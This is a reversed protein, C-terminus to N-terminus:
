NLLWYPFKYGLFGKTAIVASPQLYAAPLATFDISISIVRGCGSGIVVLNATDNVVPCSPRYEVPLWLLKKTNCTIWQDTVYLSHTFTHALSRNGGRHLSSKLQLIGHSTYLHTGDNSFKMIVISAHTEIIEITTNKTADWLRVTKDRSASAVLKGDPSFVASDVADPHGELVGCQKGTSADWLRVTKDWSASAVLKGDPSFVVSNVCNTHGELVGCQKGTSPDWLRVTEDLSASAVLKGDPSFVASTVDNTHGELVGCQKGTSTDWLRVTKDDSTSAVLKGDPSFV